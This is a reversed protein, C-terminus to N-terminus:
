PGGAPLKRFAAVVVPEDKTFARNFVEYEHPDDVSITFSYFPFVVIDNYLFLPFTNTSTM